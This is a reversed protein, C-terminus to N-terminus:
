RCSCAPGTRFQVKLETSEQQGLFKMQLQAKSQVTTTPAGSNVGERNRHQRGNWLRCDIFESIVEEVNLLM